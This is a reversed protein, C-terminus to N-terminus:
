LIIILHHYLRNRCLQDKTYLINQVVKDDYIRLLIKNGNTLPVAQNESHHLPIDTIFIFDTSLNHLRRDHEKEHLEGFGNEIEIMKDSM